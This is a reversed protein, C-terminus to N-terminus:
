LSILLVLPIVTSLRSATGSVMDLIQTSATYWTTIRGEGHM